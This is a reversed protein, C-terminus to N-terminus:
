VYDCIDLAGFQWKSIYFTAPQHRAKPLSRKNRRRGRTRPPHRRNPSRQFPFEKDLKKSVTLM